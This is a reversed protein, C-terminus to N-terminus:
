INKQHLKEHNREPVGYMNGMYKYTYKSADRHFYYDIKRTPTCTTAIKSTIIQEFNSPLLRRGTKM